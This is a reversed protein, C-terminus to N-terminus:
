IIGRKKSLLVFSIADLAKKKDPTKYEKGSNNLHDNYYLLLEDLEKNKYYNKIQNYEDKDNGRLRTIWKDPYQPRGTKAYTINVSLRLPPLEKEEEKESQSEAAAAASSMPPPPLTLPFPKAAASASAEQSSSSAQHIQHLQQQLPAMYQEFTTSGGLSQQSLFTVDTPHPQLDELQQDVLDNFPDTSPEEAGTTPPGEAETTLPEEASTTPPGEADTSYPIIGLSHLIRNKKINLEQDNLGSDEILSSYQPTNLLFNAKRNPLKGTTQDTQIYNLIENYSEKKRLGSYNLM